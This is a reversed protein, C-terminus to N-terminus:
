HGESERLESLLLCFRAGGTPLNEAVVEGGQAEISKRVQVLGLGTGRAKTTFFPEWLREIVEGPLGPGNDEIRICWRGKQRAVGLTIRNDVRTNGVLAMAQAANILINRVARGLQASDVACWAEEAAYIEEIHSCGLRALEARLFSVESQVLAVVNHPVLVPAAPRAFDLLDTTLKGLGDVEEVMIQLFDSV